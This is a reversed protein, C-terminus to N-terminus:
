TKWANADPKHKVKKCKQSLPSKYIQITEQVNGGNLLEYNSFIQLTVETQSFKNM